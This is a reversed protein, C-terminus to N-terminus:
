ALPVLYVVPHPLHGVQVADNDITEKKKPRVSELVELVFTKSLLTLCFVSFNPPGENSM